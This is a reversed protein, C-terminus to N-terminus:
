GKLKIFDLNSFPNIHTIDEVNLLNKKDKESINRTQSRSIDKQGTDNKKSGSPINITLSQVEKTKSIDSTSEASSVNDIMIRTYTHVYHYPVM